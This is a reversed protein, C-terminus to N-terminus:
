LRSTRFLCGSQSLEHFMLIEAETKEALSLGEEHTFPEALRMSLEFVADSSRSFTDCQFHTNTFANLLLRSSDLKTFARSQAGSPSISMVRVGVVGRSVEIM